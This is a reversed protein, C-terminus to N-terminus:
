RSRSCVYLWSALSRTRELEQKVVRVTEKGGQERKLDDELEQTRDRHADLEKEVEATKDRARRLDEELQGLEGQLVELQSEASSARATAQSASHSLQRNEAALGAQADELGSVATQM